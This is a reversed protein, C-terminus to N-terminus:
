LRIEVLGKTYLYYAIKKKARKLRGNVAAESIGLVGSIQEYTMSNYYRLFVIERAATSLTRIAERVVDSLAGQEQNPSAISRGELSFM